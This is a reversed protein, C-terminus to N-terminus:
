SGEVRGDKKREIVTSLKELKKLIENLVVIHEREIDTLDNLDLNNVEQNRTSPEVHNIKYSVSDKKEERQLKHRIISYNNRADFLEKNITLKMLERLFELQINTNEEMKVIKRETDKASSRSTWWALLVAIIPSLITAWQVIAEM